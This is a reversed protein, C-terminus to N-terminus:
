MEVARLRQLYKAPMWGERGSPVRCFSWGARQSIEIVVTGPSIKEAVGASEVPSTRLVLTNTSDPANQGEVVAWDAEMLLPDSWAAWAFLGAGLLVLSVGGSVWWLKSRHRLIGITFASLGLWFGIAGLVYLVGLGQQRAFEVWNPSSPWNWGSQTQRLQSLAAQIEPAGPDLARARLLAVLAGVSNGSQELALGLNFYASASPGATDIALQFSRAAAAPDGADWAALGQAFAETQPESQPETQPEAIAEAGAQSHVCIGLALLVLLFFRPPSHLLRLSKM